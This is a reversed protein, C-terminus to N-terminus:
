PPVATGFVSGGNYTFLMRRSTPSVYIRHSLFFEIGLLMFDDGMELDAVKLRVHRIEEGGIEFRDVAAMWYPSAAGSAGQLAGAPTGRDWQVGLRSAAQASLVSTAGSDLLVRLKRGDISAVAHAAPAFRSDDRELRVESLPADKAVWYALNAGSCEGVRRVLRVVRNALDYETDGLDLLNRGLVGMTGPAPTVGGVLFDVNAIEGGKLLRLHEVRTLRTAVRGTVGRVDLTMPADVVHLHLTEATQPTLTSYFAGTDVLLPVQAGNIMVTAVARQGVIAVPLEMLRLACDANSVAPWALAAALALGALLCAARARVVRPAADLVAAVEKAPSNV